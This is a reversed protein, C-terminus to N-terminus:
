PPAKATCCGMILLFWECGVVVIVLHVEEHPYCGLEVEFLEDNPSEGFDVFYAFIESVLAYILGMVRLESTTLEITPVGVILLHDFESVLEDVM